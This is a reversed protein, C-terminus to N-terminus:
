FGVPTMYTQLGLAHSYLSDLKFFRKFKNSVSIVM